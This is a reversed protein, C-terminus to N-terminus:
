RAGISGVPGRSLIPLARPRTLGRAISGFPTPGLPDNSDEIPINFDGVGGTFLQNFQPGNSTLDLDHTILQGWHFVMDTVGRASPRNETQNHLLNSITRPNPRQTTIIADGYGDPFQAGYGIRPQRTEAAGQNPTALNNGTGDFTRWEIATLDVAPVSRDELKKVQLQPRQTPKNM